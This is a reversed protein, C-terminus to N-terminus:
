EVGYQKYLHKQPAFEGFYEKEAKLRVRIATIKDIYYGLHINEIKVGWKDSSKSWYVGTIGSTNDVRKGRNMNNEQQTCIRLNQKRNDYRIRNIHDPEKDPPLNLIHNHMQIIQNKYSGIVYKDRHVWWYIGKIKNYDEIDFYFEKNNSDYGIGYEGSLNYTNNKSKLIKNNEKM